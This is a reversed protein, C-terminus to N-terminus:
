KVELCSKELDGLLPACAQKGGRIAVVAPDIDKVGELGGTKVAAFTRTINQCDLSEKPCRGPDESAYAECVKREDGQLGGCKGADGSAIAECFHRLAPHVLSGCEAPERAVMAKRAQDCESRSPGVLCLQHIVHAKEAGKPLKRLERALKVSETCGGKADKPLADCYRESDGAVALCTMLHTGSPAGLLADKQEETLPKLAALDGSGLTAVTKKCAEAVATATAAADADPTAQPAPTVGAPAAQEPAAAPKQEPPDVAAAGYPSVVM